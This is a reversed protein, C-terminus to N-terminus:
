SAGGDDLVRENPIGFCVLDGDSGQRRLYVTYDECARGIANPIRYLDAQLHYVCVALVPRARRIVRWAGALASMESGEIDMKIFTPTLQSLASDLSRQRVVTEGHRTVRAGATGDATFRAWGDASGVASKEVHVLRRTEDELLELRSELQSALSRDPEFAVISVPPRMSSALFDGISDGDFAGCDVFVEASGLRVLDPPFYSKQHGGRPLDISDMMSLLRSLQLLYESRSRDDHLRAYAERVADGDEYLRHPLDICNYPLFEQPHKWYLPVFPVVRGGGYLRLQDVVAPFVLNRVPSWSTVVFAADARFMKAAERPSLVPKQDLVEGQLTPSNDAFALPEVGQRRLGALTRRGLNGAGFLVLPTDAGGALEDFCAREQLAIDPARSAVLETRLWDVDM